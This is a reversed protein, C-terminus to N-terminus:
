EGGQEVTALAERLQEVVGTPQDEEDLFSETIWNLAEKAADALRDRQEVLAAYQNLIAIVSAPSCARVFEIFEPKARTIDCARDVGKLAEAAARMRELTAVETERHIVWREM